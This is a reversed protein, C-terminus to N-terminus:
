FSAPAEPARAKALELEEDIVQAFAEYPQAGVLLRGNIFFAPTGTLGHRNAENLDQQWEATHKGSDLCENFAKADVGVELAYQKLDAVELKSQNAFLKDHLEWFKGQEHACTGAEAAKAAQPHIQLLPLDRFVVRIKDGYTEHLKKLSPNVRSCFPCQFDSYEIITVPATAPGGRVPDDTPVQVAVRPPELLVRVQAKARLEKLFAAERERAKQQNLGTEIQKLAEAEALTGFRAKNKEYFDKQEEPTTKPAKAEIEQKRLEDVSITRAAAEKEFLRKGIAQDVLQRKLTYEQTRLNFLRSGGAQEIEAATIAEGGVTAVTDPAQAFAPLAVLAPFLVLVAKATM